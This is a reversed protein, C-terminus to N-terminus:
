VRYSTPVTVKENALVILLCDFITESGDRCSAPTSRQTTEYLLFSWAYRFKQDIIMM